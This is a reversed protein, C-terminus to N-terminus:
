NDYSVKILGSFNGGHDVIIETPTIEVRTLIGAQTWIGGERYLVEVIPNPQVWPVTTVFANFFAFTQYPCCAM